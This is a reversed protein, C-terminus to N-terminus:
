LVQAAETVNLRVSPSGVTEFESLSSGNKALFAELAKKDTSKRGAVQTAEVIYNDVQLKGRGEILPLVQERLAAIEKEIDKKDATLEALEKILPKLNALSANQQTQQKTM